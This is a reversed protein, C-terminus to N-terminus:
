SIIEEKEIFQIGYSALEKLIPEYLEPSTPVIVGTSAIKGTLLLKVAIALPTGVTMAMATNVTDLGIFVMSSTIKRVQEGLLYEFEHQMVIMDKDDPDLGWKQELLQQLIQAPTAQPLGIKKDEFLGLWSLKKIIEGDSDLGLYEALKIEVPKVHDFKLFSNVYERYTLEESHEIVYTDDTCGLQVFVNWAECFGPRRMTGRFITPIGELGYVKRYKLSDRNPYVEFSGANLVERDMVRDFLKHYPIYKYRGNRIFQSVGQGALVVNRPNWTFKYHWPNNDSEPAILGGTFSYFATLKGNKARIRDIVQMASMHDIGPDVGLENLFAVGKQKLEADMKAVAPSVYSATAMPIAQGLCVAAVLDHFRAPLMSIVVDMGKVTDPIMDTKTVDFHIARARPHGHLKRQALELNLDGIVIHWDHEESHNLLYNILSTASLGAGLILINKM